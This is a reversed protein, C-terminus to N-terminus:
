DYFRNKVSAMNQRKEEGNYAKFMIPNCYIKETVEHSNNNKDTWIYNMWAEARVFTATEPVTISVSTGSTQSYVGDVIIQIYDALPASVSFSTGDFSISSFALDSDFVRSYFEGNRYAKLCDHETFANVLLINRGTWKAGWETEHDPVCFGWCRKGTLLIQDWIELSNVFENIESDPDNTIYPMSSTNRIEMGIVRDDVNLLDIVRQAANTRTWKPFGNKENQMVSWGPHNVTIGGGDAYQLTKLLYKIAGEATMNAGGPTLGGAQGTIATCGIGNMHLASWGDTFNHHEANPCGVIGSPVTVFWDDLPYFPESPYYNSFAIHKAGGAVANDLYIQHVTGKTGDNNRIRAHAHSFSCIQQDNEWDVNAYPNVVVNM